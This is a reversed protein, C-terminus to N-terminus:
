RSSELRQLRDIEAAILAGAIELRRIQSHKLRKDDCCDFPFADTHEGTELCFVRCCAITGHVAYCAATIALEGMRHTDDHEASKREGSVQRAREAAIREVGSKVQPLPPKPCPGSYGHYWFMEEGEPMPEGCLKCLTKEKEAM